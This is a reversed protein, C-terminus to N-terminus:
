VAMAFPPVPIGGEECPGKTLFHCVLQFAMILVHSVILPVTPSVTMLFLYMYHYEFQVCSHLILIQKSNDPPGMSEFHRKGRGWGFELTKFQCM